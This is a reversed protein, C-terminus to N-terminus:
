EFSVVTRIVKKKGKNKEIEEAYEERIFELVAQPEVKNWEIVYDNFRKLEKLLWKMELPELDLYQAKTAHACRGNGILKSPAVTRGGRGYQYFPGYKRSLEAFDEALMSFGDECTNAWHFEFLDSEFDDLPGVCAPTANHHLRELEVDLREMLDVKKNTM